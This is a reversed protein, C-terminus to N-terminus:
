LLVGALPRHHRWGTSQRVVALHGLGHTRPGAGVSRLRQM